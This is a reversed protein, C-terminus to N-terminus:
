KEKNKFRGCNEPCRFQLMNTIHDSSRLRCNHHINRPEDKTCWSGLYKCEKKFHKEDEMYKM